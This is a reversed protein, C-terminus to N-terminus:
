NKIDSEKLIKLIRHATQEDTYLRNLMGGRLAGVVAEAKDEGVAIGLREKKQKITELDLGIMSEDLKTCISKGEIDFYHGIIDGAAGNEIIFDFDKKSYAGRKRLVSKESVAGISFVAIKSEKAYNLIYSIHSDNKILDAASKSDVVLPVPLVFGEASFFEAFKEIIRSSKTSDIQGAMSGNMMVIKSCTKNTNMERIMVGALVDLTNGWSVSIIDEPTVIKCLDQAVARCTDRRSIDPDETFSPTIFVKDLGFRKYFEDELESVSKDPYKVRIQVYGNQVAKKILRCVSSKSIFEEKAIQDQNMGLEYYKKVVSLMQNLENREM